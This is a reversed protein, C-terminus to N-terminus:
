GPMKKQAEHLVAVRPQARVVAIEIRRVHGLRVGANDWAGILDNVIVGFDANCGPCEVMVADEPEVHDVGRPWSLAFFLGCQFCETAYSFFFPSDGRRVYQEHPEKREYQNQKTEFVQQNM